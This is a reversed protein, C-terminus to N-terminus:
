RRLRNLLRTLPSNRRVPATSYEETRGSGTSPSAPSPERGLLDRAIRDALGATYGPGGAAFAAAIPAPDVVAFRDAEPLGLPPAGEPRLEVAPAGPELYDEALIVDVAPDIWDVVQALYGLPVERDITARSGTSITVSIAPGPLPVVHASRIGQARLAEQLSTILLSKGSGPPGIVRLIHAPM